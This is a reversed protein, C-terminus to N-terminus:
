NQNQIWKKVKADLAARAEDETRGLAESIKPDISIDKGEGCQYFYAFSASFKLGGMPPIVPMIRVGYDYKKTSM